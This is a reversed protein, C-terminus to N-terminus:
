IVEEDSSDDVYEDTEHNKVDNNLLNINTSTGSVNEPKEVDKTINTEQKVSNKLKIKGGKRNIPDVKKNKTKTKENVVKGPDNKRNSTPIAKKSLDSNLGSLEEDSDEFVPQM